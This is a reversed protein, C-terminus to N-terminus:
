LFAHKSSLYFAMTKEKDEKSMQVNKNNRGILNYLLMLMTTTKTRKM